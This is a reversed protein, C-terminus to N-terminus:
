RLAAVPDIRTARRAPLWSALSAVATVAVAVLGLTVPDGPAVDFLMTRMARTAAVAGAAGLAVGLATLAMAQGLVLRAVDAPRAGLAIRVGIERTRQGVSYAIVGYLGVIALLFALAAFTGLLAMLFRPEARREALAAEITQARAIRIAPDVTAIATLLAPLAAAADDTTRVLLTAQPNAPRLPEYIKLRDWGQRAGPVRVDGAVGVVTSWPDDPSTRVRAGVAHRRPFFRRAFTESVVVTRETTDGSFSRGARLPVGVAQFWDPTVAAYGLLSPREAAPLGAGDIEVQGMALSIRTPDDSGLVAARVGPKSRLQDLLRAYMEARAAPADFRSASMDLLVGTLRHPDYGVDVRLLSVFSRVLLGAGALLVVSLALEGVVLVGRARRSRTSGAVSRASEQLSPGLAPETAFIAPALGFLLGTGVALGLSWALVAPELRVDDLAGMTAPRLAVILALGRWALLVGLAGGAVALALSETLLQRVVRGRGAGLAARIAFERQRAWARALLLNAVNACAILLVVGVAAFMLLLSTRYGGALAERVSVAAAGFVEGAPAAESQAVAALERSAAEPTTGPRLRGVASVGATGASVVLPAFIQRADRDGIVALGFDRPMVGIVTHPVGDLRVTEGLVDRRGGFRRQWLGHGLMVVAPAGRVQEDPTFTRGLMPSTGLFRPLDAEIAAGQLPEPTAGGDGGTLTPEITRYTAIGELSRVRARWAEVLAATPMIRVQGNSASLQLFVLREGDRYPLPALLLQRVASFIATNAGIGLAITLVAVATFAPTARFQRLALRLDLAVGALWDSARQRRVRPAETRRYLERLEAVDAADGFRRLAEARAAAPDLGAACLEDARMELHFRIEDDVERALDAAGCRPLRFIRRVSAPLRRHPTQPTQPTM